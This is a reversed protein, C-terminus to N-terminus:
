NVPLRLQGNRYADQREMGDCLRKLQALAAQYKAEYLAMLDAEGKMQTYAEVLAGYLLVPDYNDSLWTTGSAVTTISEPYAFYHLETVYAADPTPGLIFTLENPEDSRTGFLAYYKPTGTSTPIPYAERIFSVDKNLLYSYAGTSPSVIAMSAVALFDTPCALYVNSSTTTGTVNKRLAPINVSNYIRKEAQSFFTALDTASFTNETYDALATCLATYTSM